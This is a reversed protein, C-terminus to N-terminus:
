GVYTKAALHYGYLAQVLAKIKDSSDAKNYMRVIYDMPAYSVSLEGNGDSAVVTIVNDLDQPCIDAIEIYYLGEEKLVPTYGGFEVGEISGSFYFRVALKNRHLLTAGYFKLGEVSGAISMNGGETPVEAPTIAIGANALDNEKYVFYSQAAAGYNLMEKVLAKTVDNYDGALIVDAYERATYSATYEQEGVRLTLKVAETMQAAALRVTLIPTGTADAPLNTLDIPTTVGAFTMEATAGAVDNANLALYFKVAIDDALVLNWSDVPATQVAIAETRTAGCNICTYLMEGEQTVTPKKSVVGEDWTHVGTATGADIIHEELGCVSCTRGLTGDAVCTANNDATYEGFICPDVLMIRDLYYVPLNETDSEAVSLQGNIKLSLYVDVDKGNYEKLKAALASSQLGWDGFLYVFSGTVNVNKLSIKYIQYGANTKLESMPVTGLVGDTNTCLEVNKNVLYNYKGNAAAYEAASNVISETDYVMKDGSYMLNFSDSVKFMSVHGEAHITDTAGCGYVCTGTLTGLTGQTADANYTYNSFVCKSHSPVSEAIVFRDIYYTPNSSVNGDIKMSLYLDVTKDRLQDVYGNFHFQVGWCSFPYVFTGNSDQTLLKVDAFKYIVYEGSGQNARLTEITIVGVQTGSSDNVHLNMNKGDGFILANMLGADGTAERKEYSIVAAKGVESAADAEVSDTGYALTIDDATLSVLIHDDAPFAQKESLVKGCESCTVTIHQGDNVTQAYEECRGVLVVRDIYCTANSIEGTVKMSLYFDVITGAYDRLGNALSPNQIQWTELFYVYNGATLGEEPVAVSFQYIQYGQNIQVVNAGITGIPLNSYEAAAGGDYRAISIKEPGNLNLGSRFYATGGAAAEDEVIGEATDAPNVSFGDPYYQRIHVNNIGNLQNQFDSATGSIEDAQVALGPVAVLTLLMAAVCLFSMMRKEFHKM